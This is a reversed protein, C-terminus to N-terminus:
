LLFSFISSSILAKIILIIVLNFIFSFYYVKLTVTAHAALNSDANIAEKLIYPLNDLFNKNFKFNEVLYFFIILTESIINKRESFYSQIFYRNDYFINSSVLFLFFLLSGARWGNLVAHSTVNFNFFSFVVEGQPILSHSLFIFVSILFVTFLRKFSKKRFLYCTLSNVIIYLVLYFYKCALFYSLLHGMYSITLFIIFYLSSNEARKIKYKPKQKSKLQLCM